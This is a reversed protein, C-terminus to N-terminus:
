RRVQDQEMELKKERKRRLAEAKQTKRMSLNVGETKRQEEEESEKIERGGEWRGGKEKGETRTMSMLAGMPTGNLPFSLCMFKLTMEECFLTILLTPHLNLCQM